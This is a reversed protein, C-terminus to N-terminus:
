DGFHENQQKGKTVNLRKREAKRVLHKRDSVLAKAIVSPPCEPLDVIDAMMAGGMSYDPDANGLEYLAEADSATLPHHQSLHWRFAGYRYHEASKDDSAEYEAASLLLSEETVVGLTFWQDSFGLTTKYDRQTM